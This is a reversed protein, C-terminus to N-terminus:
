FDWAGVGKKEVISPMSAEVAQKGAAKMKKPLKWVFM